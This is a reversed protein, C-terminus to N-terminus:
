RTSTPSDSRPTSRRRTADVRSPDTKASRGQNEALGILVEPTRGSRCAARRRRRYGAAPPRSSHRDAASIEELGGGQQARSHREAAPLRALRRARPAFPAIQKGFADRRAIRLRVAHQQPRPPRREVLIGRSQKVDLNGLVFAELADEWGGLRAQ